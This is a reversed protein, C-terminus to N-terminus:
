KRSHGKVYPFKNSNKDDLSPISPYEQLKDYNQDFNNAQTFNDAEIIDDDLKKMEEEDSHINKCLKSIYKFRGKM